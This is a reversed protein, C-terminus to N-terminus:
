RIRCLRLQGTLTPIELPAVAQSLWPPQDPAAPTLLRAQLGQDLLLGATPLSLGCSFACPRTGLAAPGWIPRDRARSNQVLAHVHVLAQVYSRMCSTDGDMRSPIPLWARAFCAACWCYDALMPMSCAAHHALIQREAELPSAPLRFHLDCLM